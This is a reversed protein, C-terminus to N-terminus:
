HAPVFHKTSVLGAILYDEDKQVRSMAVYAAARCGPHDLWLTVHPLTMGQVKPVTSAYGLRVPFAAVKRGDELEHTVMYVALRQHTRTLVQLCRSREDYDEIKAAMGNVFDDEKSMNKTLFIRMGKYIKRLAPQLAGSRLRGGRGYNDQNAEYDLPLVGLPQKHRDEFFVTAALDNITAAGQRTCTVVTTDDHKRFLYLLDYGTPERTTWARHGRLIKKLQQMSPVATRLIDLKSQLAPCKCRVQEHFPITNVHGSWAASQECRCATKDVVPLQWFDGLLVLCPLQDAYKWLALIHEFHTATLMSVEDIVVLDHQTLIAMAEQLPRHLLFAGHSTDVDIDPRVARMESALQGTPLAFLIRAGQENWRKIQEHVVHTKGTGPPGNAFLIKHEAAAAICAEQTEDDGAKQSDTLKTREGGALRGDESEEASLVETVPIEENMYRKVLHKQAQIKRLITEIFANSRAELELAGRILGESDWFDAAHYVSLAFHRYKEPVREVVEPASEMFEELRRFPRNLALWQGYYRDNLMSHTSVAALKEGRCVYNNAFDELTTLGVYDRDALFETLPKPERRRAKFESRHRRFAALLEKRCPAFDKESEQRFARVEELVAEQHKKRIHHIIEGKANSKRLFELLTMDERRWTSGEYHQLFLPKEQIDLSPAMYDVFTGSMYAQPFREQALTLWMEPELPQYRRLVGAATSLWDANMSNSFKMNYTSVYRLVAGNGDGQQVDEHCKTVEMTDKFYARVKADKDDETHHLLVKQGDPDWASPEERVPLGSDKYDCQSDTVLGHLLPETDKSPITAQVKSDLGISEMNELFDLSGRGHYKQTGRKRKGDQFELRTAHAVVTSTGDGAAPGLLHEKWNRDARGARAMAGCFYGKDLQLLVHAMHLTEAGALHQRPRGLVEQEHLIWRHYPFTREYPARTRFLSANGCQRQMDILAQHRVRWYQPTWPSGKLLLRLPVGCRAAINRKTGITTWMSLDYVFHLLQYDAGYGIVPSLVKRIFGRKIRGMKSAAIADDDEGEVGGVGAGEAAEEDSSDEARRKRGQKTKQRTEHTARAVTECLNKHYYLHPWLCCELGEEELFRLPRKRLKKDANDGHKELFENHKVVFDKYASTSSGMLHLYAAEAAKRDKRKELSTIKYEVSVPEWAFSIMATHVRYGFQVREAAGTDIELPRLAEIVRPKLDRLPEPIDAPQPVYEEKQCATCQNAPVTPKAIRRTDVPQLSRPCLSHCKECIGWSGQKCWDEVFRPISEKPKPLGTDNDALDEVIGINRVHEVEAAEEAEAARSHLKDPFFIKRRAVRRDRKVEAKYADRPKPKLPASASRREQLRVQWPDILSAVKAEGLHQRLRCLAANYLGDGKDKFTKLLNLLVRETTARCKVFDCFLCHTEGRDPHIRAPEGNGTSHFCCPSGALGACRHNPRPKRAAPKKRLLPTVAASVPSSSPAPMMPTAIEAPPAESEGDSVSADSMAEMAEEVLKGLEIELDDPHAEDSAHSMDPEPWLELEARDLSDVAVAEDELIGLDLLEDAVASAAAPSSWRSSAMSSVSRFFQLARPQRALLAESLLRLILWTGVDETQASSSTM